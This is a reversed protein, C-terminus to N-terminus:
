NATNINSLLETLEQIKKSSGVPLLEDIKMNITATADTLLERGAPTLTAFRARADTEGQDREVIHLKELPILMRTIGSATLGLKGALDIRRLRGEPAHELHYLIMFDTFDLGHGSLKRALIAQAKTLEFFFPLHNSM